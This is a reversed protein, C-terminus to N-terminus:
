LCGELHHWIRITKLEDADNNDWHPGHVGRDYFEFAVYVNNESCPWPVEERGILILYDMSHRISFETSDVCCIQGFSLNNNRLYGEVEKRTIGPKLAQTYTSLTSQYSAERKEEAAKRREYRVMLGAVVVTTVALLSALLGKTIRKMATM